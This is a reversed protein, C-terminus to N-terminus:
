KGDIQLWMSWRAREEETGEFTWNVKKIESFGEASQPEEYSARFSAFANFPLVERKTQSSHYNLWQTQIVLAAQNGTKLRSFASPQVRPLSQQAMGTRFLRHIPFMQATNLVTWPM